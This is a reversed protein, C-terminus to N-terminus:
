LAGQKWPGTIAFTIGPSQINVFLWNGNKPEFTAGCWESGTHDRADVAKGATGNTLEVDNLAFPFIDGGRTLGHVYERGSGDECLVLGGRPSVCMNDPANLVEAAPSAYLVRLTQGALDLAFVQGQGVPGGSTSIFFITGDAYWAGELRAFRAGGKARGQDYVRRGPQSLDPDPTDIDVWSVQGYSTGTDDANTTTAASGIKLMQLRGGQALDGPATPLFRYFGSSAGADETEYVVGTAPDIAVAEHSFRGMQRYPTPDGAGQAPVEFVYGHRTGNTTTTTTEECTLWTGWPTPGGACNRVTGSLSPVTDLFQGKDPDFRVTTTGGAGQANYAPAGFPAGTGLEHNRVLSVLGDSTRFAAMGDHAGPVKGTGGDMPDNTWSGSVYEFGRPLQLLALGTTTDRVPALPGYAGPARDDKRPTRPTAAAGRAALADFSGATAAM